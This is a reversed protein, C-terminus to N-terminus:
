VLAFSRRTDVPDGDLMDVRLSYACIKLAHSLFQLGTGVCRRGGSSHPYGLGALRPLEPGESHWGYFVTYDRTGYLLDNLREKFGPEM